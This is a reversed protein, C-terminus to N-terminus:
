DSDFECGWVGVLEDKIFLLPTRDRLWPPVRWQQFCKRLTQHQVHGYRRLREGGRRFRVTVESVGYQKTIQLAKESQSSLTLGLLEIELDTQLNWVYHASADFTVLRPMAYLQGDHRRLEYGKWHLCPTADVKARVVNAMMAQLQNTDPLPCGQEVLWTRLLHYQKLSPLALLDSVSLQDGRKLSELDRNLYLQLLQDADFCHRASRSLTQLASPWRAQIVPLLQHRVYNRDFVLDQNSPDEMWTLSNAVAYAEISKRSFDLLPRLIDCGNIVSKESMASLGKVGSGRMLQLLLTEVQDMQHHATVVCEDSQCHQTLAQYRALRAAAETGLGLDKDVIVSYSEFPVKWADCMSACHREWQGSTDHLQHNVHIARLKFCGDRSKLTNLLHLLVLSDVGGSLAVVWGQQSSLQSIHTTFADLTLM